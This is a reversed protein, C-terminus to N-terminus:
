YERRILRVKGGLISVRKGCAEGGVTAPCTFILATTWHAYVYAPFSHYTNCGSCTFGKTYDNM